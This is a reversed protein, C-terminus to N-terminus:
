RPPLAAAGSPLEYARLFALVRAPDHGPVKPDHTEFPESSQLHLVKLDPSLVVLAPFGLTEPHGLRALTDANRNEKSYNVHVLVFHANIERELRPDSSVLRDLARCWGCWNGGVVALVRRRSTAAATGAAQLSAWADASPDYPGPGPTAGVALSALLVTVICTVRRM